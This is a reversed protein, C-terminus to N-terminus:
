IILRSCTAFSDPFSSDDTDICFIIVDMDSAINQCSISSANRVNKSFRDKFFMPSSPTLRSTWFAM